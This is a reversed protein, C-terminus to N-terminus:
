TARPGYALAAEAAAEFTYKYSYDGVRRALYDRVDDPAGFAGMIVEYLPKPLPGLEGGFEEWADLLVKLRELEVGGYAEIFDVDGPYHSHDYDDNDNDDYM